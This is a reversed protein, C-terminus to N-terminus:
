IVMGGMEDAPHIDTLGIDMSGNVVVKKSWLLVGAKNKVQIMWERADAESPGPAIVELSNSEPHYALWEPLEGNPNSQRSSQIHTQIQVHRQYEARQGSVTM